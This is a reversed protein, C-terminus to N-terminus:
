RDPTSGSAEFASEDFTVGFTDMGQARKLADPYRDGQEPTNKAVAQVAVAALTRVREDPDDLLEVGLDMITDLNADPRSALDLLAWISAARVIAERDVCGKGLLNFAASSAEWSVALPAALLARHKREGLLQEGVIPVWLETPIESGAVAREAAVAVAIETDRLMEMLREGVAPADPVAYRVMSAATARDAPDPSRSLAVWRELAVSDQGIFGSLTIGALRSTRRDPDSLLGVLQDWVELAHEGQVVRSLQIGVWRLSFDGSGLLGEITEMPIDIQRVEGAPDWSTAYLLEILAHGVNESDKATWGRAKATVLQEAVTQILPSAAAAPRAGAVRLFLALRRPDHVRGARHAARAGAWRVQWGAAGENALRGLLTDPKNGRDLWGIPWWDMGAILVTTPVLGLPGVRLARPVTQGCVGLGVLAAGLWVTRWKRRARYLRRENAADHGCEPCVLGVASPAGELPRTARMDYWCEPCRRRGKSRDGRVGWAALVAGFAAVGWFVAGLPHVGLGRDYGTGEWGRVWVAIPALAVGAALALGGVALVRFDRARRELEEENKGEFACAPCRRGVVGRMDALCEPCARSGPVRRGRLGRVLVSLGWLGVFASLFFLIINAPPLGM